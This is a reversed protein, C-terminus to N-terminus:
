IGKLQKVYEERKKEQEELQHMIQAKNKQYEKFLTSDSMPNSQYHMNSSERNNNNILNSEKHNEEENESNTENVLHAPDEEIIENLTSQHQQQVSSSTSTSTSILEDTMKRISEIGTLIDSESPPHALSFRFTDKKIHSYNYLRTHLENVPVIYWQYFQIHFAWLM